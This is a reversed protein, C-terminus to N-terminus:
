RVLECFLSSQDVETIRGAKGAASCLASFEQPSLRGARFGDSTVIVGNGSQERDIPGILRASAQAEFWALRDEWFRDSYTSLLVIGGRRTVRLAERLLAVQDVGFACIGNQVCAVVDFRGDPFSLALADMQLFECVAQTDLQRALDLSESSTDIGVVSRAFRALQLAVRGYGCGLELVADTPRLREAVHRVEADLYQRVRPSALDYCQVLRRGALRTSYYGSM